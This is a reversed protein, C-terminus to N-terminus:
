STRLKRLIDKIEGQSLAGPIVYIKQGSLNKTNKVIILTPTGDIGLKQALALNGSIERDIAKSQMDQKLTTTNLGVQKASALVQEQSLGQGSTMLRHHLLLYKNQKNAAIAAKSAFASEDGLIPLEKFIIKVNPDNKLLHSLTQSLESCHSCQYDFFIL